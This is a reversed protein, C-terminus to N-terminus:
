CEKEKAISKLYNMIAEKGEFATIDGVRVSLLIDFIRNEDISEINM